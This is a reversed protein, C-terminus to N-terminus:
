SWCEVAGQGVLELGLLGVGPPQPVFCGGRDSDPEWQTKGVMTTVGLGQFTRVGDFTVCTGLVDTGPRHTQM